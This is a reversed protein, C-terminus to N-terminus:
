FDNYFYGIFVSRQIQEHMYVMIFHVKVAFRLARMMKTKKSIQNKFNKSKLISSLQRINPPQFVWTHMDDPADIKKKVNIKIYVVYYLFIM